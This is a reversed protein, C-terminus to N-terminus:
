NGAVLKHSLKMEIESAAKKLDRPSFGETLRAFKTQSVSQFCEKMERSILFSEFLELRQTQLLLQFISAVENGMM